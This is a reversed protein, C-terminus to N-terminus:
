EAAQAQAAQAAAIQQRTHAIRADLNALYKIGRGRAHEIVQDLDAGAAGLLEAIGFLAANVAQLGYLIQQLLIIPDKSPPESASNGLETNSPTLLRKRLYESLSIGLQKATEAVAQHQDTSVEFSLIKTGKEEM